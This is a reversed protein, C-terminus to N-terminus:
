CLHYEMQMPLQNENEDKKMKVVYVFSIDFVVNNGYLKRYRGLDHCKM